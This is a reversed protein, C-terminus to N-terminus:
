ERQFFGFGVLKEFRKKNVERKGPRPVVRWDGRFYRFDFRQSTTIPYKYMCLHTHGNYARVTLTNWAIFKPHGQRVLSM